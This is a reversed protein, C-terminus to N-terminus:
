GPRRNSSIAPTASITARSPTWWRRMRPPPRGRARRASRTWRPRPPPTTTIGIPTGTRVGLGSTAIVPSSRAEYEGSIQRAVMLRERWDDTLRVVDGGGLHAVRAAELKPLHRRRLDRARMEMLHGLDGVTAWGGSAILHELARGAIKGLREVYQHEYGDPTRERRVYPWRLRKLEELLSRLPTDIHLSGGGPSLTVGVPSLLSLRPIRNKQYPYASGGAKGDAGGGSAGTLLVHATGGVGKAERRLLGAEELKRLAGSVTPQRTGTAESITRQARVVRMGGRRAGRKRGSGRHPGAIVGRRTYGGVGKWPFREWIEWLAAIKEELGGVRAFRAKAYAEPEFARAMEELRSANGGRALYDDVGQKSGDTAHPLYVVLVRGGRAELDGV